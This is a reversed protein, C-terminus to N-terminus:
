FENDIPGIIVAAMVETVTAGETRNRTLKRAITPSPHVIQVEGDTVRKTPIMTVIKKLMQIKTLIPPKSRSVGQLTFLHRTIMGATMTVLTGSTELVRITQVDIQTHAEALVNATNLKSRMSSKRTKRMMMNIQIAVGRITDMVPVM